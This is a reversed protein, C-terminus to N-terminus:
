VSSQPTYHPTINRLGVQQLHSFGLYTHTFPFTSIYHIFAM